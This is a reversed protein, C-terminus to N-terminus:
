PRVRRRAPWRRTSPRTRLGSRLRPSSAATAGSVALGGGPEFAVGSAGDNALGGYYTAFVLRHARPDIKAVFADVKGRNGRAYAGATVPFDTSSTAGCVAIDGAAVDDQAEIDFGLYHDILAVAAAVAAEASTEDAAGLTRGLHAELDSVALYAM